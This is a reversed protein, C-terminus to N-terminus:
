SSLKLRTDNVDSGIEKVVAAVQYGKAGCYDLLRKAQSELNDRNEAASVRAYVAVKQIPAPAMAQPLPETIIITGTEVQYGQLQGSRFWRWATGYSVGVKRAYESLKL